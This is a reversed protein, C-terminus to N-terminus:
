QVSREISRAGVVRTLHSQDAFGVASAALPPPMGTRLLKLAREVRLRIQYAHPPLGVYKPPNADRVLQPDDPMAM